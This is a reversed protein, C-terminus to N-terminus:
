DDILEYEITIPLDVVLTSNGSWILGLFFNSNGVCSVPRIVAKIAELGYNDTSIAEFYYNYVGSDVYIVPTIQCSSSLLQALNIRVKTIKFKQGVRFIRSTFISNVSGYSDPRYLKPTSASSACAVVPLNKYLPARPDMVLATVTSLPSQYFPTFAGQGLGAKQLGLSYVVSTLGLESTGMLLRDADGDLAGPMPAYGRESYFVEEFSYGGIYRSVRFGAQSPNGSVVYLIGNINKMGTILPDPFETWTILNANQSTTDWFGIKAAQAGGSGSSGGVGEYLAIAISAGYTEIATPYLGYGFQLASYTSGNDTDGEVTTKTTKIYHIVGKNDVVDGFYLRGDSHRCMVHNPIEVEFAAALPYTTDSLAAKGLTTGWFDGNFTPTGDLPGYRAVTTDKALYIYNDYYAAGNGGSGSLSGGDSLETVTYSSATNVSFFSGSSNYVYLREIKPNGVIWQPIDGSVFTSSIESFQVPRLLGSATRANPDTSNDSLPLSPDIQHGIQFQDEGSFHSTPSIGGLISEIRVVRKNDAM